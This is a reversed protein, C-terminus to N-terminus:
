IHLRIVPRAQLTQFVGSFLYSIIAYLRELREARITYLNVAFVHIILIDKRPLM